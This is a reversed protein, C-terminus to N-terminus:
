SSGPILLWSSGAGGASFHPSAAVWGADYIANISTEQCRIVWFLAVLFQLNLGQWWLLFFALTHDFYNGCKKVIRDVKGSTLCLGSTLEFAPFSFM